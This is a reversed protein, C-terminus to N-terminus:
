SPYKKKWDLQQLRGQEAFMESGFICRCKKEKALHLLPTGDPKYNIDMVVTDSLLDGPQIPLEETIPITNVLIDYPHARLEDLAYAECGLDRAIREARSPTRNFVAVTLGRMKAEAAVARAAGGAGLIAIRKGAARGRMEIPNLAGSADTNTGITELGQVTVTNVAGIVAAEPELRSLYPIIAEKLPSTVSFGGFPLKPVWPFFEPLESASLRFKLYVGNKREEHFIQNHFVPGQSEEVPDGLLAFIKTNRNLRSYHYLEQLTDVDYQYLADNLEKLSCYNFISGVIPGMIRSPRGEKGMSISALPIKDATERTFAMLRIMDLTSKAMCCIKYIAFRPHHMSQLLAELNEPTKRFDHHSGILVTRPYLQGMREIFAGDTDTEIDAFPPELSLAEEYLVLREKESIEAHGGQEQKRFTFIFPIFIKSVLLDLKQLAKRDFYDLRIEVADVKSGFEGIEQFAEEVTPGLIVGVLM